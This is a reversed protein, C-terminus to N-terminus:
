NGGKLLKDIRNSYKKYEMYVIPTKTEGGDFSIEFSQYKVSGVFSFIMLHNSKIEEFSIIHLQRGDASLELAVPLERGMGYFKMKTIDNSFMKNKEANLLDYVVANAKKSLKENLYMINQEKFIKDLKIKKNLIYIAVVLASILLISAWMIALNLTEDM